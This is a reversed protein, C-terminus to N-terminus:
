CLQCCNRLLQLGAQQSKEPHFQVGYINDKHVTSTFNIGYETSATEYQENKTMFHYSHVFYFDTNDEINKFLKCQREEKVNNWGIHPVRQDTSIKKVEGEILALGEHGGGEDGNTALLQMGLCIGLIPVGDSSLERIKTNFGTEVLIKAAAKFSGVGPLILKNINKLEKPCSAISHPVGLSHLAKRVSNINSLGINVIGIM